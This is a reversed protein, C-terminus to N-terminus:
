QTEGLPLVLSLPQLQRAAVYRAARDEGRSAAAQCRMSFYGNRLGHLLLRMRRPWHIRQPELRALLYSLISASFAHDHILKLFYNRSLRASGILHTVRLQPFIGFGLGASAATWSFLDDGGSFLEDAKRDVM